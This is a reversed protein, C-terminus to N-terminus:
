RSNIALLSPRRAHVGAAVLAACGLVVAERRAPDIRSRPLTRM